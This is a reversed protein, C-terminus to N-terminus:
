VEIGVPNDTPDPPTIVPPVVPVDYVILAVLPEPQKAVVALKMNLPPEINGVGATGVTTTVAAVQEEAAVFM